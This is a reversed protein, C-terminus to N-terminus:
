HKDKDDECRDKKFYRLFGHSVSNEDVYIGTIAGNANIARPMTEKATGDPGASFSTFTGDRYRVFAVTSGVSPTYSGAITGAPDIIAIGNVGTSGPPDFSTFAGDPARLFGHSASGVVWTGAIAGEPNISSAFTFASLPFDFSVLGGDRRRLFGHEGGSYDEYSGTVAGDRNISEPITAFSGPPDFEATEGDRNRVFGHQLHQDDSGVFNGTIAGDANMGAPYLGRTDGPVDFTTFDGDRTRLYGHSLDNSDTYSGSITGASDIGSSFTGQYASTGAGPVDFTEITGDRRRLFGHRVHDNDVYNGAVEGQVNISDAYTGCEPFCGSTGSGAGPADFTVIIPEPPHFDRHEQGAARAPVAQALTLSAVVLSTVIRCVTAIWLLSRLKM